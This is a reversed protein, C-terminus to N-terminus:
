VSQLCASDLRSLQRGPACRLAGGSGRVQPQKAPLRDIMAMSCKCCLQHGCPLMTLELGLTDHCVPCIQAEEQPLVGGVGPGRGEGAEEEPAASPGAEDSSGAQAGGAAGAAAATAPKAPSAPGRQRSARLGELYRLTGLTRRLEAAAVAKDGSLEQPGPASAASDSGGTNSAMLRWSVERGDLWGCMWCVRANSELRM